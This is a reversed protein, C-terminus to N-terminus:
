DGIDLEGSYGLITARLPLTQEWSIQGTSSWGLNAIKKTGTFSPEVHDMPDSPKRYQVQTKGNITVGMTDEFEFSLSAWHKLKNRTSGAQDKIAPELTSGSPNPTIALGVQISSAAPGSSAGYALTVGGRSVAQDDYVAGDGVVKVTQGNLHSLGTVSTIPAGTYTLGCHVSMDQNQMEVFHKDVGGITRKMIFWAQDDRLDVSPISSVWQYLGGAGTSGMLAWARVKEVVYNCFALLAGDSRVLWVTRNPKNQYIMTILYNPARMFHDAILSLEESVLTQEGDNWMLERLERGSRQVFIVRSGIRVPQVNFSGETTGSRVLPPNVASVAELTAGVMTFEEGTTGIYLQQSGILWQIANIKNSGLQYTVADSTAVTGGTASPTMDEYSGTTSLWIRQPETRTAGFSLRQEFITIAAPFGTTTSWSGLRWVSKAAVSTLTLIVTINVVTTSTWSTILCYGWTTAQQMRVFRGVDTTAWGANNNIGTVASATLTGAAGAAFVSPTLTTTTTNADMYPGDLFTILTLTWSTHSSLTLKRPAYTPHVIYLTDASQAFKLTPIDAVAYTTTLQYPRNWAGGSIYANVFASAQLDIQNAAIVTVKWEGNAEDTGVTNTIYVYDNTTLGHAASTTVRILGASNVMTTVNGSLDIIRAGDRYFRFYLNGAEIMYAQITSYEFPILYALAADKTQAIWQQGYQTIVGGTPLPIMNRCTRLGNAYREYDERMTLRPSLEGSNLANQVARTVGM